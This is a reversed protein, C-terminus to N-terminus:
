EEEEEEEIAAPEIVTIVEPIPQSEVHTRHRRPKTKRNIGDAAAERIIEPKNDGTIVKASFLDEATTTITLAEVLGATVQAAVQDSLADFSEHIRFVRGDAIQVGDALSRYLAM